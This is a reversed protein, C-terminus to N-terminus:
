ETFFTLEGEQPVVLLEGDASYFYEDVMSASVFYLSAAMGTQTNVDGSTTM